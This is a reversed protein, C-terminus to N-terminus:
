RTHIKWCFYLLGLVSRQRSEPPVGRHGVPGAGGQVPWLGGPRGDRDGQVQVYLSANLTNNNQPSGLGTLIYIKEMGTSWCQCFM